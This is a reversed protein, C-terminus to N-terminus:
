DETVVTYGTSLDGDDPGFNALQTEDTTFSVNLEGPIFYQYFRLKKDKIPTKVYVRTVKDLKQGIGGTFFTGGLKYCQALRQKAIAAELATTDATKDIVLVLELDVRVAVSDIWVIGEASIKFKALYDLLALEELPSLSHTDDFLYAIACRCCGEQKGDDWTGGAVECAEKSWKDDLNCEGRHFKADIMGPYSKVLAEHDSPTVMRRQTSHYAPALTAIKELTDAPYFPTSTEIAQPTMFASDLSVKPLTLNFSALVRTDVVRLYSLSVKGNFPLRYGIAGDGSKLALADPLTAVPLAGEYMDDTFKSTPVVQDEVTVQVFNNDVTMIDEVPIVFTYFDTDSDVFTEITEWTGLLLTLKHTGVALYQSERLSLPQSDVYGFPVERLFYNAKTVQVTVDITMATCRNVPYDLHYAINLITSQLKATVLSRERLLSMSHFRLFTGLGAALEKVVTGTSMSFYDKWKAADDQGDLFTNLDDLITAQSIRSPDIITTGM